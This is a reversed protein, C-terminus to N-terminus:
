MKSIRNVLYNDSSLFLASKKRELFETKKMEGVDNFPSVEILHTEVDYKLFLSILKNTKKIADPDLALYIPTDNKIIEGFLKSHETLTSGLLPVSNDGAKIADFVGEVLVLDEDFDIYPHNFIIDKSVEPNMYKKWNRDYSRTVFFNIEGKDDFSPIIVRGGYKGKPCYGIKWKIIDKKGIRRSKLYNLPYISTTPLNKNALSIFANPLSIEAQRENEKPGFLKDAFKEIEIQQNFSKWEYKDDTTGFQRIIRYINRGSWDCVWCKFAEKDLNISLKRKHHDCKPCQFLYESGKNFFGGLVRKLLKVKREESLRVLGRTCDGL